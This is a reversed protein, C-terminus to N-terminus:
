HFKIKTSLKCSCALVLRIAVMACAWIATLQLCVQRNKTAIHLNSHSHGKSKREKELVSRRKNHRRINTLEEYVILVISRRNSPIFLPTAITPFTSNKTLCSFTAGKYTRQKWSKFVQTKRKERQRKKIFPNLSCDGKERYKKRERKKKPNIKHVIMTIRTDLHLWM